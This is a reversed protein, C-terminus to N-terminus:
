TQGLVSASEWPIIVSIDRFAHARALGDAGGGRFRNFICIRSCLGRGVLGSDRPTPGLTEAEILGRPSRLNQAGNFQWNYFRRVNKWGFVNNGHELHICLAVLGLFCLCCLVGATMVFVM